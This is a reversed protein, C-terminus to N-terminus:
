DGTTTKIAYEIVAIIMLVLDLGLQIIQICTLQFTNLTSVYIMAVNQGALTSVTLTMSVTVREKEALINQPVDERVATMQLTGDVELSYQVTTMAVYQSERVTMIMTVIELIWLVHVTQDAAINEEEVIEPCPIM